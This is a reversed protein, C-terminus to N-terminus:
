ADIQLMRPAAAARLRKAAQQAAGDIGIDLQDAVRREQHLEEEDEEAQRAEADPEVGVTAAM